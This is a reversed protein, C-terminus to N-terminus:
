FVFFVNVFICIFIDDTFHRGNQGPASLNIDISTDYISGEGFPM